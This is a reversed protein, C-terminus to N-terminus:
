SHTEDKCDRPLLEFRSEGDKLGLSYEIQRMVGHVELTDLLSFISMAIVPSHTLCDVLRDKCLTCRESSDVVLCEGGCYRCTTFCKYDGQEEDVWYWYRSYSVRDCNPCLFFEYTRRRFFDLEPKTKGADIKVAM